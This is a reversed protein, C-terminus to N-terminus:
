PALSLEILFATGMKVWEFMYTMDLNGIVDNSSHINPNHRGFPAEFPFSAPYGVKTFSAHDSCGYNCRSNQYGIDLYEDIVLRLFDNLSADTYDTILGVAGGSWKYGTMDHQLMAAVNKNDRAYDSAVQQSGLLGVEEAAYWHFELPRKPVFKTSQVIANLTGWVTM